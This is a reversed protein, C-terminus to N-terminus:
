AVQNFAALLVGGDRQSVFSLSIVWAGDASLGLGEPPVAPHNRPFVLQLHSYPLYSEPTGEFAAERMYIQQSAIM